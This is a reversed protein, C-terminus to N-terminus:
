STGNPTTTACPVCFALALKKKVSPIAAQPNDPTTIIPTKKKTNNCNILAIANLYSNFSSKTTKRGVNDKRSLVDINVVKNDLPINMRSMIRSITSLGSTLFLVGM